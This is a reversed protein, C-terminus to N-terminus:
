ISIGIISLLFRYSACHRCVDVGLGYTPNGQTKEHLNRCNTQQQLRQLPSYPIYTIKAAPIDSNQRMQQPQSQTKPKQIPQKHRGKEHRSKKRKKCASTTGGVRKVQKQAAATRMSARAQFLRTRLTPQSGPPTCSVLLM